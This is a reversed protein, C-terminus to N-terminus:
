NVSLSVRSSQFTCFSTTRLWQKSVETATQLWTTKSSLLLQELEEITRERDQLQVGATLVGCSM